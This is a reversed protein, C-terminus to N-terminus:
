FISANELLYASIERAMKQNAAPPLHIGDWEPSFSPELDDYFRDLVLLPVGERRTVERLRAMLVGYARAYLPVQSRRKQSLPPEIFLIRIGHEKAIRIGQEINQEFYKPYYRFWEPYDQRQRKPSDPPEDFAFRPSGHLRIAIKERLTVYLVSQSALWTSIREWLPYKKLDGRRTIDSFEQSTSACDNEGIMVIILDPELSLTERLREPLWYSNKGPQAANIVEVPRGPRREQLVQGALYPFTREVPGSVGYTTSGGIFLIRFTGPTKVANFEPSRFGLSNTMNRFGVHPHRIRQIVEFASLGVAFVLFAMFIQKWIKM